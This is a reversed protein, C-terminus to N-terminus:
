DDRGASFDAMREDLLREIAQDIMRGYREQLSEGTGPMTRKDLAHAVLRYLPHKQEDAESALMADVVSLVDGIDISRRAAQEQHWRRDSEYDILSSEIM